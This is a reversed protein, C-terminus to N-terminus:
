TLSAPGANAGRPRVFPISSGPPHPSTSTSRTAWRQPTSRVSRVRTQNSSAAAQRGSGGYRCGETADTETSAPQFAGQAVARKLKTSSSGTSSTTRSSRFASPKSCKGNLDMAARQLADDRDPLRALLKEAEESPGLIPRAPGLARPNSKPPKRPKALKEVRKSVLGPEVGRELACFRCPWPQRAGRLSVVPPNDSFSTAPVARVRVM